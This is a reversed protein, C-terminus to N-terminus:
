RYRHAKINDLYATIIQMADRAAEEIEVGEKDDIVGDELSKACTSWVKSIKDLMKSTDTMVNRSTECGEEYKVFVGGQSECIFDLIVNNDSMDMLGITIELPDAVNQGKEQRKWNAQTRDGFAMDRPTWKGKGKLGDRIAKRTTNM